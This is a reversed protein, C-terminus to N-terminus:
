TGSIDNKRHFVALVIRTADAAGWNFAVGGFCRRKADRGWVPWREGSGVIHRLMRPDIEDVTNTLRELLAVAEFNWM